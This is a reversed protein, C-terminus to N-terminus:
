LPQMCSGCLKKTAEVVSFDAFRQLRDYNEFEGQAEQDRAYQTVINVVDYYTIPPVLTPVIDLLSEEMKIPLRNRHALQHILRAPEPAPLKASDFFNKVFENEAHESARRAQFRLVPLQEETAEAVFNAEYTVRTLGNTCVLRMLYAAISVQRGIDFFIGTECVDDKVREKRVNTLAKCRVTGNIDLSFGKWDPRCAHVEKLINGSTVIHSQSNYIRSLQNKRFLFDVDVPNRKICYKVIEDQLPRDDCAKLLFQVPIGTLSSLDKKAEDGLRHEVGGITAVVSEGLFQLPTKQLDAKTTREHLDEIQKLAEEFSIFPQM